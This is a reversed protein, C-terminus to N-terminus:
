GRPVRAQPRTEAMVQLVRRIIRPVDRRTRFFTLRQEEPPYLVTIPVEVISLGARAARLVIEAELEYGTGKPALAQVARVPYRRLGCQTDKLPRGAFRSLFFNSIGNSFRNARPAGASALDRVGLVLADPDQTAELLRSLDKADHQGDADLTLMADVGERACLDLATRLALGKGRNTGHSHVRVDLEKAHAITDDTSGDDLVLVDKWGLSLTQELVGRLRAGANYAPIVVRVKM